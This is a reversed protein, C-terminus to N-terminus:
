TKVGPEYADGSAWNYGLRNTEVTDYNIYVFCMKKPPFVCLNQLNKAHENDKFLGNHNKSGIEHLRTIESWKWLNKDYEGFRCYNAWLIATHNIM